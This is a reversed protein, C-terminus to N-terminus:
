YVVPNGGVRALARRWFASFSDIQVPTHNRGSPARRPAAPAGSRPTRDGREIARTYSAVLAPLYRDLSTYQLGLSETAHVGSVQFGTTGFRAEDAPISPRRGLPGAVLEAVRSGRMALRTSFPRPATQGAIRSVQTLLMRPSLTDASLIYRDGDGGYAAARALGQAADDVWIWGCPATYAFRSRRAIRRAILRGTWGTDAPALILSPLALIVEIGKDRYSWALTEAALLSREVNTYTYGRHRTWENGRRGPREGVTLASSCVVVRKVGADLAAQLAHRTGAANVRMFTTPDPSWFDFFQALHFLVECGSMQDALTTPNSLDGLAPEACLRRLVNVGSVRRVQGVVENGYSSLLRVLSRGVPSAAGTVFVRM